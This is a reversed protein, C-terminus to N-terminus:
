STTVELGFTETTKSIKIGTAPDGNEDVNYINKAPDFEDTLQGNIVRVATLIPTDTKYVTLVYETVNEYGGASCQTM